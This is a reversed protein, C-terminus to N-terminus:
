EQAERRAGAGFYGAHSDYAHNWTNQKNSAAHGGLVNVLAFPLSLRLNFGVLPYMFPLSCLMANCLSDFCGANPLLKNWFWHVPWGMLVGVTTGYKISLGELTDTPLVRHVQCEAYAMRSLPPTAGAGGYSVTPTARALPAKEGADASM